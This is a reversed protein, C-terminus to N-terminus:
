EKLKWYNDLLVNGAEKLNRGFAIIGEKHGGMVLIKKYRLLTEQYLRLIENAMEPTGYEINEKTTPIKYMLKEWLELNHVHIVANIRPSCEYIAAHSLSESSANIKGLCSLTNNNFDWDIVKTYNDKTLKEIGGTKSGTIIFGEKNRISINGFGIGNEYMGILGLNYFENRWKNIKIINEPSAHEKKNCQFKTYGEQM